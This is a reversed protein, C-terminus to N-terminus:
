VSKYKYAIVEAMNEKNDYLVVSSDSRYNTGDTSRYESLRHMSQFGKSDYDFTNKVLVGANKDFYNEEPRGAM